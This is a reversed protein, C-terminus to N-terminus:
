LDELLGKDVSQFEGVSRICSMKESEEGVVVRRVGTGMERMDEFDKRNLFGSKGGVSSGNISGYSQRESKVNRISRDKSDFDLKRSHSTNLIHPM